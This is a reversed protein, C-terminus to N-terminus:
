QPCHWPPSQNAYVMGAKGVVMRCLDFEAPFIRISHTELPKVGVDTGKGSGIGTAKGIPVSADVTTTAVTAKASASAPGHGLIDFQKTFWVEAVVLPPPEDVEVVGGDRGV